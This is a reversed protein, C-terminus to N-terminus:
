LFVTTEPLSLAILAAACCDRRLEASGGRRGSWSFRLTEYHHRVSIPIQNIPLQKWPNMNTGAKQGQAASLYGHARYVTIGNGEWGTM